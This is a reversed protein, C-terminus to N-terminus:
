KIPRFKKIPEASIPPPGYVAMPEDSIIDKFKKKKTLPPSDDFGDNVGNDAYGTRSCGALVLSISSLAVFKELFERRNM